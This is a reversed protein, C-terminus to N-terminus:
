LLWNWPNRGENLPSERDSDTFEDPIGYLDENM